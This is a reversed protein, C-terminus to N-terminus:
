KISYGRFFIIKKKSDFKIEIREKRFTKGDLYEKGKIIATAIGNKKSVQVPETIEFKNKPHAKWFAKDVETIRRRPVNRMYKMYVLVMDAYLLEASDAKHENRLRFLEHVIKIEQDQTNGPVPLFCVFIAISFFYRM